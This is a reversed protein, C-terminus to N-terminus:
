LRLFVIGVLVALLSNQVSSAERHAAGTFEAPQGSSTSTGDAPSDNSSPSVVIPTPKGDTGTSIITVYSPPSIVLPTAKGDAGTSTVTVDSTANIPPSVVVPTAKGDAGTSPVTESKGPAAPNENDSTDVRTAAPQPVGQVNTNQPAPAGQTADPQGHVGTPASDEPQATQPQGPAANVPQSGPQGEPQKPQPQGPRDNSPSSPQADPQASPQRGPQNPPSQGPTGNNPSVLSPKPQVAPTLTEEPPSQLSKSDTLPQASVVPTALASGPDGGPRVASTKTITTTILRPTTVIVTSPVTAPSPEPRLICSSSGTPDPSPTLDSTGNSTTTSASTESPVDNLQRKAFSSEQVIGTNNEYATVTVITLDEVTSTTTGEFVTSTTQPCDPPEPPNDESVQASVNSLCVLLACCTIGFKKSSWM